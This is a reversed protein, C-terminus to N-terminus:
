LGFPIQTKKNRKWECRMWLFGLCYCVIVPGSQGHATSDHYAIYTCVAGQNWGSCVWCKWWTADTAGNAPLRGGRHTGCNVRRSRDGMDIIDSAYLGVDRHAIETRALKLRYVFSCACGSEQASHIEFHFQSKGLTINDRFTRGDGKHINQSIPISRELRWPKPGTSNM